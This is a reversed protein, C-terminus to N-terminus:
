SVAVYSFNVVYWGTATVGNSLLRGDATIQAETQETQGGGIRMIVTRVLNFPATSGLSPRPLGTVIVAGAATSTLNFTGNGIVLKGIKWYYIINNNIGSGTQPQAQM